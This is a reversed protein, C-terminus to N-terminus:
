VGVKPELSLEDINGDAPEESRSAEGALADLDPDVTQFGRGFLEGDMSAGDSSISISAENIIYTSSFYDGVGIVRVYMGPLLNPIAICTMKATIGHEGAEDGYIGSIQNEFFAESEEGNLPPTYCRGGEDIDRNVAISAKVRVDGMGKAENGDVDSTTYTNKSSFSNDGSNAETVSTAQAEAEPDSNPGYMISQIGHLNRIFLAGMSETSFSTMPLVNKTVDVKAYYGFTANVTPYGPVPAVSDILVLKQNQIIMRAGCREVEFMLFQMDTRGGQVFSSQKTELLTKSHDNIVAYDVEMGYRDAIEVAISLLTRPSETSAWDRSRSMRDMHWALATGEIAISIEEGFSIQPQGMFGYHWDSIMGEMDAYGWRIAITNGLRFWESDKSILKIAEDYPPSLTISMGMNVNRAMDLRVESVYPLNEDGGFLSLSAVRGTKPNSIRCDVFPSQFAM